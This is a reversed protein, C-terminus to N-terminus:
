TIKESGKVSFAVLMGEAMEWRESAAYINSLLMYHHSLETIFELVKETMYTDSYTRCAGLLSGLIADNPEMPMRKVLNFADELRGARGLLDVLCGYYKVSHKVRYREMKSFSELGEEVLGGHACRNWTASNKALAEEFVLRANGLDGCKAYMDVLSNVVFENLEIRSKLLREHIERGIDLMGAQAVSVLTVEDPESGDEQMRTFDDMVESFMGNHAYGSILSNWIVLNMLSMVDFLERAKALAAEVYGNWMYGGIMANWSISNRDPM